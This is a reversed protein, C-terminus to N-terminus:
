GVALHFAVPLAAALSILQPQTSRFTQLRPDNSSPRSTHNPNQHNLIYSINNRFLFQSCLRPVPFHTHSSLLRTPELGFTCLSFQSSQLYHPLLQTGSPRPQRPCLKFGTAPLPLGDPLVRNATSCKNERQQDCDRSCRPLVAPRTGM